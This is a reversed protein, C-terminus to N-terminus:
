RRGAWSYFGNEVRSRVIYPANSFEAIHQPEARMGRAGGIVTAPISLETGAAPLTCRQVTNKQLTDCM